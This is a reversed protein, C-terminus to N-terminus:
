IFVEGVEVGDRRLIVKKAPKFGDLELNGEAM